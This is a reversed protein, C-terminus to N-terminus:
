DPWVKGQFYSVLASGGITKDGAGNGICYVEYYDTGNAVDDCTVQPAINVTNSAVFMGLKLQSGNKYIAVYFENGDVVNANFFVAANMSVIGAAPVWKSNAADYYNGSDVSETTFTVKTWVASAIATQDTGNKHASFNHSAQDIGLAARAGAATNAGTGGRSVALEGTWGLTISMATGVATTPAGGLTVTVNTDDTKTFAAGTWSIAGSTANLAIPGSASIAFTGNADPWVLTRTQGATVGSIQVKAQKTPDGNDQLTFLTDLLTVTNTNDLTKNTLSQSAALLVMTDTAAPITIVATGAPSFTLNNSTLTFDGGVIVNGSMNFNRSVNNLDFSLVVSGTLNGIHTIGMDFLGTGLTRVSLGPNGAIATHSGGLITPATALVVASGSTGTTSQLSKASPTFITEATIESTVHAGGAQGNQVTFTAGNPVVNRMITNGETNGAVLQVAAGTQPGGSWNEITVIGADLGSATPINVQIGAGGINECHGGRIVPFGGAIAMGMQAATGSGDSPGTLVMADILVETTGYQMSFIPNNTLGDKAGVGNFECGIVEMTGAGGYGHELLLAVAHGATVYCYAIGAGDQGNNSMVAAIGSNVDLSSNCFVHCHELRCYLAAALTTNDGISIFHVGPDWSDAKKLMTTGKGFGRLIVREPIVLTQNGSVLGQGKPMQVVHGFQSAALLPVSSIFAFAMANTLPTYNNTASADGVNQNYDFVAGFVRADIAGVPKYQWWGGNAQSVTGSPLFRDNTRFKGGTHSPESSVRVFPAMLGEASSAYGLVTTSLVDSPVTIGSAEAISPIARGQIAEAVAAWNANLTGKSSHQGVTHPAPNIGSVTM